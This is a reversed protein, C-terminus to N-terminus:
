VNLENVAVQYCVWGGVNNFSRLGCVCLQKGDGYHRSRLKRLCNGDRFLYFNGNWCKVNEPSAIEWCLVSFHTQLTAVYVKTNLPLAFRRKSLENIGNM